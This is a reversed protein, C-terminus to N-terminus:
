TGKKRFLLFAIIGLGVLIAITSAVIYTDTQPAPTPTPTSIPEDSEVVGFYTQAFSSAYSDSGEFTAIVTYQGPIDPTWMLGYKGTLDTKDRGINRFNGNDDIVDITVEIGKADTPIPKQMHLYGMWDSMSEDAVCAAGNSGASQDTVTGVIMLTEGLTIATLPAEITTKSPGKGFCYLQNDYLNHAVLKGDAIAISSAQYWGSVNWLPEGTFADMVHLKEGKWMPTGPSHEGNAAFVKEDAITLGGYFPWTGYPTEFGADGAYYTWTLDGTRIDYCRVIGDYSAAYLNGYAGVRGTYGAYYGWDNEYPETPGWILNGTKVDYGYWQKTERIFECYVDDHISYPTMSGIRDRYIGPPYQAKNLEAEWLKVGTWRDYGIFTDGSQAYIVDGVVQRVSADETLTLNMEIGNNGDLIEGASNWPRWQWFGSGTPSGPPIAKTTNFVILQGDDINYAMLEGSPGFVVTGTVNDISLMYEGTFADYMKWTPDPDGRGPLKWLYAIGGHQNPSEYDFIQAVDVKADPNYYVEEGTQMDVCLYGNPRVTDRMTYISYFLHGNIILPHFMSEYSLGGYYNVNPQESGILGGYAIPRKWLIHASNPAKNDIAVASGADFSRSTTDFAIMPWNSALNWLERNETYLPREWYEPPTAAPFGEIPDEQVVLEAVRSESPLFYDGVSPHDENGPIGTLTQGPFSMQMTYTGVQTPTYFWWMAGVDDTTFPGKTETTGDPKTVEVTLGEWRDGQPGAATPPAHNLWILVTVTQDVGVTSPAISIYSYTAVEEARVMSISILMSFTLILLMAVVFTKNMFNKM